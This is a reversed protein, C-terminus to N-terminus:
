DSEGIMLDRHGRAILQNESGTSQLDVVLHRLSIEEDSNRNAMMQQQEVQITTLKLTEELVKNRGSLERLQREKHHGDNVLQNYEQTTIFNRVQIDEDIVAVKEPDAAPRIIGWLEDGQIDKFFSSCLSAKRLAISSNIDHMPPQQDSFPSMEAHRSEQNMKLEVFKKQIGNLITVMRDRSTRLRRCLFENEALLYECKSQLSPHDEPDDKILEQNVAKLQLLEETIASNEEVLEKIHVLIDEFGAADHTEKHYDNVTQSSNDKIARKKLEENKPIEMQPRKASRELEESRETDLVNLLRSIIRSDLTDEGGSQLQNLIEFMGVRLNDNEKSIIEYSAEMRQQEKTWKAEKRRLEEVAM